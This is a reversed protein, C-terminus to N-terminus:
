IKGKLERIEKKVLAIESDDRQDKSARSLEKLRKRLESRKIKCEQVYQSPTDLINFKTETALKRQQHEEDHRLLQTNGMAAMSAALMLAVQSSKTM